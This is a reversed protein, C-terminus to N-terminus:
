RATEPFTVAGTGVSLREAVARSGKEVVVFVVEFQMGTRLLVDGKHSRIYAVAFQDGDLQALRFAEEPSGFFPYLHAQNFPCTNSTILDRTIVTNSDQAQSVVEYPGRLKSHLKSPRFPTDLRLFVFDGKVFYNNSMAPQKVLVEAYYEV